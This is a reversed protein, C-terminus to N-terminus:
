RNKQMLQEANQIKEELEHPNPIEGKPDELRKRTLILSTAWAKRADNVQELNFYVDGLHDYLVPDPETYIMAKKLHTLAEASQGKKFYIWGLSDLFYGNRPQISLAQQLHHMAKDLDEGKTAYMYGIFNHANSHTPNLELTRQMSQIADDYQGVRELLAGQEFFYVDRQDDLTIAKQIHIIAEENRNVAMNALALAHYLRDNDPDLTVAADLLEISKEMRNDLGYLRALHLLIEVPLDEQTERYAEIENIAKDMREFLEFIRAIILRIDQQEGEVLVLRFEDLAQLYSAHEYLASGLKTHINSEKLVFESLASSDLPSGGASNFALNIEELHKRIKKNNPQLKLIIKYQRIAKEYQNQLEYVQALHKRSDVLSPRLNLAKKYNAIAEERNGAQTLAKGLYHYGLANAPDALVAQKFNEVAEDNKKILYFNNGIMLYARGNSPDAQTIKKYHEIAQERKGQASLIDAVIMRMAVNGPFQQLGDLGGQLASEFQGTRLLLHVLHSYFKENRPDYKVVRAYHFVAQDFDGEREHKLALLFHYYARPDRYTTNPNNAKLIKIQRVAYSQAFRSSENDEVMSALTLNQQSPMASCNALFVGALLILTVFRMKRGIRELSNRLDLDKIMELNGKVAPGRYLKKSAPSSQNAKKSVKRVPVAALAIRTFSALDSHQNIERLIKSELSKLVPVWEQGEVEVYLTKETLRVLRSRLAMEQGVVIPWLLSVRNLKQEPDAASVGQLSGYLAQRM